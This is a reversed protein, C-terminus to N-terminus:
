VKEGEDEETHKRQWIGDVQEMLHKRETISRFPNFDVWEEFGAALLDGKAAASRLRYDRAYERGHKLRLAENQQRELRQLDAKFSPPSEVKSHRIYKYEKRSTGWITAALKLLEQYNVLAQKYLDTNKQKIMSVDDVISNYYSADVLRSKDIRRFNYKIYNM